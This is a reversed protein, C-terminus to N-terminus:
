RVDLEIVAPASGIQAFWTVRAAVCDFELEYHGAPLEPFEIRCPLVEGPMIARPPVVIQHAHFDYHILRGSQDYVHVGLRVGGYEADAPLWRVVGNNRVTVDISTSKGAVGAATPARVDIACALGDISRSDAVEDGAKRLFFKRVDRQYLRTGTLWREAMEGGALFEEFESLSAYLPTGNFIAIRMRAFGCERAVRWLGHVDVDNEVVGSTRMEFQSMTSRSHRPGPESFAAIGGPALIRGFERIIAEPNPTHHFADFCVIRDVSGDPLDIREGDFPLFQPSPRDGIVPLRRYLERAIELATPSVDLVVVSCGLQTLQRSIWGTGGGFDLVKSGPKLHLGHLLMALNLLLPPADAMRSFPKALHDDWDKLSSFYEEALRNLEPISSRDILTKVDIRGKAAEEGEDVRLSWGPWGGSPPTASVLRRTAFVIANTLEAEEEFHVHLDAASATVTTLVDRLDYIHTPIFPVGPPKGRLRNAVRNALPVRARMWRAVRLAASARTLYPLQFLGVGGPAVRDLLARLLAMGEARPLRQLVNFCCVLDFRRASAFLEDPTQFEIETVGRRAAERRAAAMMAPSRDVATVSGPRRALPIALRGIGCGYELMSMPAAHAWLHRDMVHFMWSVLAEGTRFLEAEREATLNARLFQAAPLVAFFPEREAFADFRPDSRRV